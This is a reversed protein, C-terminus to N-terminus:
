KEEGKQPPFCSLCNGDCFTWVRLLECWRVSDIIEDIGTFM